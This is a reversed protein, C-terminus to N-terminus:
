NLRRRGLFAIGALSLMALSAPEPAEIFLFNAPAYFHGGATGPYLVSTGFADTYYGAGGGNPLFEILSNFPFVATNNVPDTVRHWGDAASAKGAIRYNVGATLRVPSGLDIYTYGGQSQGPGSNQVVAFAVQAADSEQYIAVEHTDALEGPVGVGDYYGLATVDIDVVPRFAFGLSYNAEGEDGGGLMSYAAVPSANAVATAALILAVAGVIQCLRSSM